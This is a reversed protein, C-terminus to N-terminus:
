RPQQPELEPLRNSRLFLLSNPTLVPLQIDGEFYCFPRNNLAIEVNLVVECLETQTLM